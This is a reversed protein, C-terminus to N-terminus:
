AARGKKLMALLAASGGAAIARTPKERGRLKACRVEANVALAVAVRQLRDADDDRGERDALRSEAEFLRSLELELAPTM